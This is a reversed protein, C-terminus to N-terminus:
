AQVVINIDPWLEAFMDLAKEYGLQKLSDEVNVNKTEIDVTGGLYGTCLRELAVNDFDTEFEEKAKEIATKVVEKQDEHLKFTLTTVTSTTPDSEEVEKEGGKNSQKLAELLQIFTLKKAQAVWYDVNDKTLHKALVRLKTWGVDKVSEWPIENELLNNYIDALYMAKRYEMNFEKEVLEKFNKHEGFWKHANIVSLIGGIKFLNFELDEVLTPVMSIAKEQTLNEVEHAVEMIVDNESTSETKQKTKLLSLTPSSM